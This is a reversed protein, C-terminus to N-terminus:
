RKLHSVVTQKELELLDVCRQGRCAVECMRVYDCASM